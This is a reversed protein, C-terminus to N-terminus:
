AKQQTIGLDTVNRPAHRLRAGFSQVRAGIRRQAM